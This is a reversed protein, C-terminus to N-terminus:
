KEEKQPISEILAKAVVYSLNYRRIIFQIKEEVSLKKENESLGFDEATIENMRNEM